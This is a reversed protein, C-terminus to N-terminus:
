WIELDTRYNGAGEIVTTLWNFFDSSQRVVGKSLTIEAITPIGPQKKTYTTVGDRYEANETSVEPISAAHFGAAPNLFANPEVVHFRFKQFYDTLAARAM